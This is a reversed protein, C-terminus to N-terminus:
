LSYIFFSSSISIGDITFTFTASNGLLARLTDISVGVSGHDDLALLTSVSLAASGNTFSGDTVDRGTTSDSLNYVVNNGNHDKVSVHTINSYGTASVIISDIMTGSPVTHIDAKFTDTGTRAGDKLIVLGPM